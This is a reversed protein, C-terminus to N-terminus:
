AGRPMWNAGTIALVPVPIRGLLARFSALGRPTLFDFLSRYYAIAAEAVGPDRFAAHAAAIIEAREPDNTDRWDPSWNDWLQPIMAYDNTRFVFHAIFPLQFLFMYWSQGLQTPHQILGALYERVGPVALLSLKRVREPYRAAAVYVILAGWDHGVLHASEIELADLLAPVDEALSLIHYDNDPLQSAPEYGRLMPAITRYGAANLAAHQRRFTQNHDPFGHLLLVPTGDAPGEILVSHQRQQIEVQTRM